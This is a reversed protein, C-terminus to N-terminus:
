PMNWEKIQRWHKPKGELRWYIRKCERLVISTADEGNADGIGPGDAKGNIM